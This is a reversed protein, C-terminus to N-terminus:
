GDRKPDGQGGDPRACFVNAGPNRRLETEPALRGLTGERDWTMWSEVIQGNCLRSCTTGTLTEEQGSHEAYLSQAVSSTHAEWDLDVMDGDSVLRDITIYLDPFATRYLAVSMKIAEPGHVLDPILGGHNVYAPDFLHDALTLDGRNWIREVARRVVTANGMTM